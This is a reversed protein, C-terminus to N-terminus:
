FSSKDSLSRAPPGDYSHNVPDIRRMPKERTQEEIVHAILGPTRAIMFIGNFTAPNMELDALIAGIAGDVNIPLSKKADAFAKEVARAAQMHVGDVGAERALEFLRATRPDKTHVRHGFGSMREGAESMTRLTRTAAEELSISDRAARDAIAKLQRACDEIAGGHHRNISMIGAAVSASLTAGTSAVSRANLASPPTAGHDISSVLIADMLRAVAPSPLEGTLILYVAAGFSVHGMLEAIDYGRVAVKNPQIRTIGSHWVAKKDAESMLSQGKIEKLITVVALPLEGFADVVTAGAERLAKVKGAHTGRGGEIIAGAHSFRTGERAAKGGIYAIVPKTIKRDAILQSLEEEQSSGIEGFIVIVETLPDGEFMLAADPLRIGIVADGGIHVISSLRVGAQGLYYGTSSAMGGSRSIVGVGKPVGPKFWQRASEARGGIMGVVAKGPSLAGLTNPGLFMASNAKAAAAIEMADWVPVRDPVLVALKIGAEIASIAAEKVGAAPVFVVSVDINGLSNVAEQPTNFVPVGLVSQGGKGPTVGGVVNTGYERMLRTRARGERGTIGQVLVRKKEDILIAM